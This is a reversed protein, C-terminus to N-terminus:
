TKEYDFYLICIFFLNYECCFDEFLFLDNIFIIIIIYINM